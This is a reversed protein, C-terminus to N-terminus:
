AIIGRNIVDAVQIVALGRDGDGRVDIRINGAQGVFQLLSVLEIGGSIIERILVSTARTTARDATRLRRISSPCSGPPPEGSLKPRKIRLSIVWYAFTTFAARSRTSYGVPSNEWQSPM